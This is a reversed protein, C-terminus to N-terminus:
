DGKYWEDLPRVDPREGSNRVWSDFAWKQRNRLDVLVATSHVEFDLPRWRSAYALIQHHRLLGLQDLLLLLSTTNLASEICDIQSPDGTSFPGARAKAGATGAEPAIRREFWAVANAAALREAEPSAVGTAMLQRLATYDSEDFGIETRFKCAFGHCVVVLRLTPVPISQQQYQEVLQEDIKAAFGSSSALVVAAAAALRHM